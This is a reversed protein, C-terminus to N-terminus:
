VCVRASGQGLGAAPVRDDFFLCGGMAQRFFGRVKPRAGHLWLVTRARAHASVMHEYPLHGLPTTLARLAAAVQPAVEEKLLRTTEEGITESRTEYRLTQTSPCHM